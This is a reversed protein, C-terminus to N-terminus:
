AVEETKRLGALAERRIAALDDRTFECRIEERRGTAYERKQVDTKRRIATILNMSWGESQACDGYKTQMHRIEEATALETAKASREQMSELFQSTPSFTVSLDHNKPKPPDYKHQSRVWNRWAATWDVMGKGHAKWHDRFRAAMADTEEDSYGAKLAFEREREDPEWGEPLDSKSKKKASKPPPPPKDAPVLPLEDQEAPQQPPGVPPSEEIDTDSESETEVRRLREPTAGSNRAKKRTWEDRYKLLNPIKVTISIESDDLIVLSHNQLSECFKRFVKPYTGFMKGWKSAPFTVEAINKEDVQSAVIELLRWWFGYGALGHEDVFLSIKEDDWTAVMHRFWRM